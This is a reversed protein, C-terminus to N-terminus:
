QAEEPYWHSVWMSLERYVAVLDKGKPTLEYKVHRQADPIVERNVIGEAELLKLRQTLTAPNIGGMLEQLECFRRPEQLFYIIELTWKSGLFSTAKEIPCTLKMKM